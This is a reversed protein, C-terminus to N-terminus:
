RPWISTGARARWTGRPMTRTVFPMAVRGARDVAILGGRGGLDEVDRLAREAAQAVPVGRGAEFAIQRAAGSRVFVEGDGTCSVAVGADAWTGAGIIPSDGVRGPPQGRIGGTSTAAALRGRRDVCVAGVTAHDPATDRDHLRARQRATIFYKSPRQELGCSAALADAAEGVMLVQPSDLVAAAALIPHECHKVAAVAGASRDSRMVAASMEVSGDACLASGCGANFLECSEMVVVAAQVADTAEGGRGLADAAAALAEELAARISAEEEASADVGDGAGGHIAVVPEMAGPMATRAKGVPM